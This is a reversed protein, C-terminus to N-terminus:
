ASDGPPPAPAAGRRLAGALTILALAAFLVFWVVALAVPLQDTWGNATSILTFGLGAGLGLVPWAPARRGTDWLLVLALPLAYYHVGVWKGLVIQLVGGLAVLALLRADRLGIPRGRRAQWMVVGVVAVVTVGALVLNSDFVLPRHVASWADTRWGLVATALDDLWRPLGPGNIV